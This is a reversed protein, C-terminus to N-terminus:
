NKLHNQLSEKVLSEAPSPVLSIFRLYSIQQHFQLDVTSTLIGAGNVQLPSRTSILAYGPRENLYLGAPEPDGFCGWIYM